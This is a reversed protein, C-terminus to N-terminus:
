GLRWLGHARVELPQGRGPGAEDLGLEPHLTLRRGRSVITVPSGHRLVGPARGAGRLTSSESESSAVGSLGAAVATMLVLM